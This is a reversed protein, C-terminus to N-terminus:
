ARSDDAREVLRHAVETIRKLMEPPSMNDPGAQVSGSAVEEKLRAVRIEFFEDLNSNSICLFRLRELLPTAADKSQELVRRNFELLSLERNIYLEPQKSPEPPRKLEVVSM